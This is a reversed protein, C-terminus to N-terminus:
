RSLLANVRDVLDLPEFPKTVYDDAGADMGLKLDGTQAKASLLIIPISATAEDAKLAQVLEIGSVRPMMIDSVIIDPRQARAAEIGEAGDHALVVGFGELEFNVELLRLIVPDDEVVLVTPMPM